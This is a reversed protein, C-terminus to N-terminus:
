REWHPFTLRESCFTGFGSRATGLWATNSTFPAGYAAFM